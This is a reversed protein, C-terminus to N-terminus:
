FFIVFCDFFCYTVDTTELNPLFFLMIAQKIRAENADNPDTSIVLLSLVLLPLSVDENCRQEKISYSISNDWSIM